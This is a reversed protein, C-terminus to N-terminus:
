LIERHVDAYYYNDITKTVTVKHKHNKECHTYKIDKLHICGYREKVERLARNASKYCRTRYLM